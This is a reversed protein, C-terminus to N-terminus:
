ASRETTNRVVSIRFSETIMHVHRILDLGIGSRRWYRSRPHQALETNYEIRDFGMEALHLPFGADAAGLQPRKRDDLACGADADGLQRAFEVDM